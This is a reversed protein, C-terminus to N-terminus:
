TGTQCLVADCWIKSASNTKQFLNQGFSQSIESLAGEYPKLLAGIQNLSAPGRAAASVELFESKASPSPMAAVASGGAAAATTVSGASGNGGTAQATKLAIPTIGTTIAGTANTSNTTTTLATSTSTSTNAASVYNTYYPDSPCSGKMNNLQGQSYQGVCITPNNVCVPNQMTAQQVCSPCSNRGNGQCYRWGATNKCYATNYGPSGSNSVVGQGSDTGDGFGCYANAFLQCNTGNQNIQCGQVLSNVCQTNTFNSSQSCDVSAATFGSNSSASPSPSAAAQNTATEKKAEKEGASKGLMYGGLGGAALGGVGAGITWGHRSLWSGTDNTSADTTSANIRNRWDTLEQNGAALAAQSRQADTIRAGFISTCEGVIARLATVNASKKELMPSLEAVSQNQAQRQAIQRGIETQRNQEATLAKGCETKCANMATTCSGIKGALVAIQRRNGAISATAGEAASEVAPAVPASGEPNVDACKPANTEVARRCAGVDEPSDLAGFNFQAIARQSQLLSTMLYFALFIKRM